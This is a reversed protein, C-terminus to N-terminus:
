EILKAEPYKEKWAKLAGETRVTITTRSDLQLKYKPRIDIIEKKIKSMAKDKKIRSFQSNMTMKMRNIYCLIAALQKLM